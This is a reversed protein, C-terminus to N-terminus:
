GAGLAKRAEDVLDKGLITEFNAIVPKTAEVFQARGEPTIDNITLLGNLKDRAESLAKAQAVWQRDTAFKMAQTLMAREENSFGDWLAKNMGVIFCDEVHSTLSAYKTVEYYKGTVMEPLGSDFGDITKQQLALYVESYDMAVPNAGLARFEQLYVQSSIVRLKLGELDKPANIPRVNNVIHRPGNMWAAILEFGAANAYKNLRQGLAGELATRLKASSGVLFPLSLVDMQKIFNSYWAPVTILMSQTGLQVATLMDKLGGLQANPFLDVKLKGGSLKTLEEQFDVMALHYTTNTSMPSGFRLARQRNQAIAPMALPAAAAAISLGILGRRSTKIM